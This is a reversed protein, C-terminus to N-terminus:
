KRETYGEDTVYGEISWIGTKQNQAKEQATLLQDLYKINPPNIYAVRAYGFEVMRENVFIDNVWIYALLRDYKDRAVEGFEIKVTSNEKLLSKLYKSADVGFPQVPKSPHVSEPSDILLLRVTEVKGKYDIKLTDGDIVSRVTVSEQNKTVTDDLITDSETAVESYIEKKTTDVSQSFILFIALIVLVIIDKATLRM